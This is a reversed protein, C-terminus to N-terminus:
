DRLEPPVGISSHRDGGKDYPGTHGQRTAFPSWYGDADLQDKFKRIPVADHPNVIEENLTSAPFWAWAKFKDPEKVIPTPMYDRISVFITGDFQEVSQNMLFCLSFPNTLIGCEEFTERTFTVVAEESNEAKGGPLRWFGDKHLGLLVYRGYLIIGHATRIRPSSPM